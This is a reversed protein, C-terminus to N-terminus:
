TLMERAPRLMAWWHSKEGGVYIAAANQVTYQEGDFRIRDGAQLVQEKPGIYLWRRLDSAGFNGDKEPADTEKKQIMQVFAHVTASGTETEVTVAKGNRELIYDFSETM